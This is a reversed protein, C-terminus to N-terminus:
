RFEGRGSENCSQLKCSNRLKKNNGFSDTEFVHWAGKLETGEARIHKGNISVSQATPQYRLTIYGSNLVM